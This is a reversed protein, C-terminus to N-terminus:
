ESEIEGATDVSDNQRDFLESDDIIWSLVDLEPFSIGVQSLGEMGGPAVHSIKVKRIDLENKVCYLDDLKKNYSELFEEKVMRQGDKQLESFEDSAYETDIEQRLQTLDGFLEEMKRLGNRFAFCFEMSFRTTTNRVVSEQSHIYGMINAIELNTLTVKM